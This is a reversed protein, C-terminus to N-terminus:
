KSEKTLLYKFISAKRNQRGMAILAKGIEVQCQRYGIAFVQLDYCDCRCENLPISTNEYRCNEQHETVKYLAKRSAEFARKEPTTITM